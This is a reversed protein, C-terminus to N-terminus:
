FRRNTFIVCVLAGSSPSYLRFAGPLGNILDVRNNNFAVTAVVRFTQWGTTASPDNDVQLQFETNGTLPSYWHVTARDAAELSVGRSNGGATTDIDTHARKRTFAPM